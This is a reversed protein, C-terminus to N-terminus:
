KHYLSLLDSGSVWLIYVGEWGEFEELFFHLFFFNVAREGGLDTFKTIKLNSNKGIYNKILSLAHMICMEHIVLKCWCAYNYLNPSLNWHISIIFCLIIIRYHVIKNSKRKCKIMKIYDNASIYIFTKPNKESPLPFLISSKYGYRISKALFIYGCNSNWFSKCNIQSKVWGAFQYSGFVVANRWDM